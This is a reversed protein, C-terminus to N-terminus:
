NTLVFNDPYIMEVLFVDSPLFGISYLNYHIFKKECSVEDLLPIAM